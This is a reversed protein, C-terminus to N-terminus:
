SVAAIFYSSLQAFRLNVCYVPSISSTPTRSNGAQVRSEEVISGISPACPKAHAESQHLMRHPNYPIGKSCGFRTTIRLVWLFFITYKKRVTWTLTKVSVKRIRCRM